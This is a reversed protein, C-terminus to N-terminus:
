RLLTVDGKMQVKHGDAFEIEFYYFYVGNDQPVGQYRGDWGELLQSIQHFVEFGWRNLIRFYKVQFGRKINLLPRFVDNRGDGNPTFANPFLVTYDLGLVQFSLSASDKCGSNSMAGVTITTPAHLKAYQSKKDQYPFLSAPSWYLM